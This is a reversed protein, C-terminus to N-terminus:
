EVSFCDRIIKKRDLKPWHRQYVNSKNGPINGFMNPIISFQSLHDSITAISNGSIIDPDIVNSFINDVLTDPHSTVRTPQLIVLIFSKSALSDLFTNTQTHENYNFLNVNVRNLIALFAGEVLTEGTVEVFTSNPGWFKRVKIKLGEAM